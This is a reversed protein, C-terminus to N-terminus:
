GISAKKIYNIVNQNSGIDFSLETVNRRTRQEQEYFINIMKNLENAMDVDDEEETLFFAKMVEYKSITAKGNEINMIKTM